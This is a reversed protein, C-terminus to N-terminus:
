REQLFDLRGELEATGGDHKGEFFCGEGQCVGVLLSLLHLLLSPALVALEAGEGPFAETVLDDVGGELMEEELMEEQKCESNPEAFVEFLSGMLQIGEIIGDEKRKDGRTGVIIRSNLPQSPM